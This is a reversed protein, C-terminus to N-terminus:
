SEYLFFETELDILIDKFRTTLEVDSTGTSVVVM